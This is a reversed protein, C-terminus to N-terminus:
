EKKKHKPRKRQSQRRRNLERGLESMEIDYYEAAKRIAARSEIAMEGTTLNKWMDAAATILEARTPQM